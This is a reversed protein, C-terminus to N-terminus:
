GATAFLYTLLAAGGVAIVSGIAVIIVSGTLALQLSGAVILASGIVALWFQLRALPSSHLQPWLRYLVGYIALTVFGPLLMAVHLDRYQLAGSAGMWFGEIMGAVLWLLSLL